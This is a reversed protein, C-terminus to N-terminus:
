VEISDIYNDIASGLEKWRQEAQPLLKTFEDRAIKSIKKLKRVTIPSEGVLDLSAKKDALFKLAISQDTYKSIVNMIDLLHKQPLSKDWKESNILVGSKLLEHFARCSEMEGPYVDTILESLTVRNSEMLKKLMKSKTPDQNDEYTINSQNLSVPTNIHEFNSHIDKKYPCEDNRQMVRMLIQQPVLKGLSKYLIKEGKYESTFNFRGHGYGWCFMHSIVDVGGLKNLETHTLNGEYMYMAASANESLSFNLKGSKNLLSLFQIISPIVFNDGSKGEFSLFDSNDSM